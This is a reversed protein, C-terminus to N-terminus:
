AVLRRDYDSIRRKMFHKQIQADFENKFTKSDTYLVFGRRSLASRSQKISISNAKTVKALSRRFRLYTSHRLEQFSNGYTRVGCYDVLGSKGYRAIRLAGQGAHKIRLSIKALFLEVAQKLRLALRKTKVFFILDDVYRMYYKIGLKSKIYHDFKHLYFNALWQSLYFGLPLGEGGCELILAILDLVRKDRIKSGLMSSLTDHSISSYYQKIDMQVVWRMPAGNHNKAWHKITKHAFSPGRGPTVAVTHKIFAKMMHPSLRLMIMWHVIQDRFAPQVIVRVKGSKHDIITKPIADRPRYTGNNLDDILEQLLVDNDLYKRVSPRRRKGKSAHHAASRAADLTFMTDFKVDKWTKM